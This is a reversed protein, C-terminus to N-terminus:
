DGGGERVRLMGNLRHHHTLLGTAFFFISDAPIGEKIVERGLNDWCGLVANPYEQLDGEHIDGQVVGPDGQEDKDDHPLRVKSM